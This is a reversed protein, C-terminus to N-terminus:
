MFGNRAPPPAPLPCAPSPSALAAGRPHIGAARGPVQGGERPPAVAPGAPAALM